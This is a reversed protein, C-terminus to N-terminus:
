ILTTKNAKFRALMICCVGLLSCDFLVHVIITNALAMKYLRPACDSGVSVYYTGICNYVVLACQVLLMAFFLTPSYEDRQNALLWAFTVLIMFVRVALLINCILLYQSLDECPTGGTPDLELVYIIVNPILLASDCLCMPVLAVMGMMSGLGVTEIFLDFM